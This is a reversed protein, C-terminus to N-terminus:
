YKIEQRSFYIEQGGVKLYCVGQGESLILFMYNATGASFMKRTKVKRVHSYM